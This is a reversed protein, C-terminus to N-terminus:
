IRTFTIKQRNEHFTIDFRNFVYDRGLIVYDLVGKNEPVLVQVNTLTCFPTTQKKVVLKQLIGTNCYFTAGAGVTESKMLSGDRMNLYDLSLIEAFDLPVITKSAGSDVLAITEYDAVPSKM